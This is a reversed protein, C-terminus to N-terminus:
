CRHHSRTKHDGLEHEAGQACTGKSVFIYKGLLRQFSQYLLLTTASHYQRQITHIKHTPRQSDLRVFTRTNLLQQAMPPEIRIKERLLSRNPSPTHDYYMWMVYSRRNSWNKFNFAFEDEAADVRPPHRRQPSQIIQRAPEELAMIGPAPNPISFM